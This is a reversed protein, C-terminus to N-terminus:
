TAGPWRSSSWFASFYEMLHDNYVPKVTDGQSTGHSYWGTHGIASQSYWKTIDWSHIVWHYGMVTDGMDTDGMDWPQIVWHHGMPKDGLSTGHSYWGTHGIASDSLSIGHSYWGTIDWSQIVWHYGMVTDGMDWPQIVWHHGMVTDGLSTGDSCWGIHGMVTKVCSEM